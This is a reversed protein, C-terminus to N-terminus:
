GAIGYEAVKKEKQNWGKGVVPDKGLLRSKGDPLWLIPTDAEALREWSYKPNIEKLISKNSRRTIWPVIWLTNELVLIWFCWNQPTWGEKHNFEWMQVHSGSFDYSQCVKTPLTIEWIKLISDLNTMAKRGLLLCRKIKHSYDSDATIKSDLFIFDTVSAM